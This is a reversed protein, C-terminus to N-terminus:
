MAGFIFAKYTDDPPDYFIINEKKNDHNKKRQRLM